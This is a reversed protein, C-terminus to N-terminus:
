DHLIKLEGRLLVSHPVHVSSGDGPYRVILSATEEGGPVTFPVVHVDAEPFGGAKFQEALYNALAPVNGHSAATRFGVSTRLIDRAQRQYPETYGGSATQAHLAPAVVLVVAIGCAGLRTRM